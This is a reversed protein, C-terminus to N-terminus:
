NPKIIEEKGKTKPLRLQETTVNEVDQMVIAPRFDKDRVELRVNRLTLGCVHRLYLGWSPLEGFMSFEPYEDICEPVRSLDTLPIYAMGKTARGPCSINIDSLTINEINHGPIGSIPSPFPNHFFNVEPGRLDYGIDPRGFPIHCSLGKISINRISGPAAGARHGLRIFLANGTNRAKIDEVNINEIHAGDVSEIAIASRFTDKVRIHRININRFAGWSATGLKIASASSTIHCNTITISDNSGDTHYSKLCIGDDASNIRCGSVIVNRCDTIDIGDNNWYARNTVKFGTLRMNDCMDFSLGWCASNRMTVGRIDVNSCRSMLLLKPRATENPRKRKNNYLPDIRVGAHHLSDITLALTLGQGDITGKGVISINRAKDALILALRSNDKRDSDDSIDLSRYDEPNTSGLLTAGKDIQLTINDKLVISGTLYTGAKLRITGGGQAYLGDIARQMAQTNITTGDPVLGCETATITVKPAVHTDDSVAAAQAVTMLSSLLLIPLIRRM